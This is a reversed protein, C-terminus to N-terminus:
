VYGRNQHQGGGAAKTYIDNLWKAMPPTLQADRDIYTRVNVLFSIEKGKVKYGLRHIETILDNAHKPIM